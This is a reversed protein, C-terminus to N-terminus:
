FFDKMMGKIESVSNDMDAQEKENLPMEIIFKIGERNIVATSGIYIDSHGYQGELYVSLPLIANEDNFIAKTIRALSIAIGYYTSGKHEIIEYAADRVKHFLEDLVADTIEPHDKMWEKIQLGGINAHSWVPFQSDGHEGLTYAQVDRADVGVLEALAQQFRASDLSTGSGIVREKPLGSYKWVAYTLVDVPNTAVLFIGDFGSSMVSDVISKTIKLNKGILDLRTEGPAQSAGATIVVLDADACDKYNAVYIQKPSTYALGHSLDLADGTKKGINLDIIGIERAINQSTLAFAYSAGVDGAGILIVKQKDKRM